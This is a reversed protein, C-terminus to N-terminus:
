WQLHPAGLGSQVKDASPDCLWAWCYTVLSVRISRARRGKEVSAFLRRPNAPFNWKHCSIPETLLRLLRSSPGTKIQSAFPNFSHIQCCMNVQRISNSLSSPKLIFHTSYINNTSTRYAASWLTNMHYIYLYYFLQIEENWNFFVHKRWIQVFNEM